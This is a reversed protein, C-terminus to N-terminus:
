LGSEVASGIECQLTDTHAHVQKDICKASSPFIVRNLGLRTLQKTHALTARCTNITSLFFVCVRAILRVRCVCGRTATFLLIRMLVIEAFWPGLVEGASDYERPQVKNRVCLEM